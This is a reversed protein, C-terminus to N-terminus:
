IPICLNTSSVLKDINYVFNSRRAPTSSLIIDSSSPIHDKILTAISLSSLKTGSGVNMINFGPTPPLDLLYLILYVFYSSHIYDRCITGNSFLELNKNMICDNILTDILGGGDVFGSLRLCYSMNNTRAQYNHIWNESNLKSTAYASYSSDVPYSEDVSLSNPDGYVVQSSTYIFKKISRCNHCTLGFTTMENASFHLCPSDGKGETAGALHIITDFPLLEDDTFPHLAIDRFIIKFSPSESLCLLSDNEERAVLAVTYGYNVLKNILKLGLFGSAGTILLRKSHM